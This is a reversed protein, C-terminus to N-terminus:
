YAPYGSIMVDDGFREVRVKEVNLADAMKQVGKGFCVPVGDNGALLKPAYFFCLKDVVKQRFAEGMVRSGGELLVQLM